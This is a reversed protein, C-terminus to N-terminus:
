RAAPEPDVKGGAKIRPTEDALKGIFGAADKTKADKVNALAERLKVLWADSAAPDGLVRSYNAALYLSQLRDLESTPPAQLSAEIQALAAKRYENAKALDGLDQYQRALTRLLQNRFAGDKQRLAYVEELRALRGRLDTPKDKGKLWAAIAAREAEPLNKFDGYFAIFGTDACYWLGNDTVFPWFVMDYKSPFEYIYGGWSMPEHVACTRTPDIPDPVSKDAWTIAGASGAWAALLLTTIHRSARHM